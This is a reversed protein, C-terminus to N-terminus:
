QAAMARRLSPTAPPEEGNAEAAPLHVVQAEARPLYIRLTTGVGERSDIQAGGGSQRAFGYVQSLGLGTGKGVEKTTFFPDFARAAVAPSMGCGDDCLSLVVYDGDPLGSRDGAAIRRNETAISFRGSRKMADRANAAINLLAAQFQSADIRCPWLDPALRLEVIVGDGLTKQCLILTERLLRDLEVRELSAGDRRAFALLRDTLQTGRLAARLAADAFRKRADGAPLSTALMELNGIIATLLNNFDHAVGGTLQGMAEMKQSVRLQEEAARRETLDRAVKAFGIIAGTEDHIPGIAVSAWFRSGDKRVRWGEGEFRGTTRATDLNRQPRGERREEETYFMSFNRGIAEAATYGKIREGGTNWNSIVGDPDLMYIAYDSVGQVLIRFRQESQRL